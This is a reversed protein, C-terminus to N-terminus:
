PERSRSREDLYRSLASLLGNKPGFLKRDTELVEKFHPKLLSLLYDRLESTSHYAQQMCPRIGELKGNDSIIQSDRIVFMIDSWRNFAREMDQARRLLTEDEAFFLASIPSIEHVAPRKIVVEDMLTQCQSWDSDAQPNIKFAGLVEECHRLLELWFYRRAPLFRERERHTVIWDVILYTIVISIAAGVGESPLNAALNQLGRQDLRWPLVISLAIVVFALVLLLLRAKVWDLIAKM